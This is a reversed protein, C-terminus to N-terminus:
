KLTQPEIVRILRKDKDYLYVMGSKRGTLCHTACALCPDYARFAMEIMNLIADSVHGGKIFARAAKEISMCIAAASNQTAVLLNSEEIMGQEDTRYHHFLTGRPAECVGFGEEPIGAPLNRVNPSTLEEDGALEDMREAAYLVEILRAWHYALANHVPRGGLVDFFKEREAQALPTAMGESVNLRALPGVRYVGSDKGSVFGKWGVNKLYLTKLYSWTDVREELHTLYDKADFKVLENGNPDVVRVKGDYFNVRNSEDVMGMYYTDHFFIDGTLLDKFEKNGLVEKHFLKLAFEAFEIADGAVVQIEAREDETLAKSVGGPLGCVPYLSSGSIATNVGRVRNRIDIVKKGIEVGLKSIVGFVNREDVPADPGLILDPGGLIFFHLLHDEFIFANYMLERIKNAAPPPEVKFLDDLAKCSATHHATPCVGCIKQTIVPMEEAPRGECFKEFGKFDPIQLYAREVDGKDDLFIEIKGHGELRTIPDITIRKKM